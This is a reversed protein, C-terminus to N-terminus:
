REREKEMEALPKLIAEHSKEYEGRLEFAIEGIKRAKEKNLESIEERLASQFLAILERKDISGATARWGVRTNSM